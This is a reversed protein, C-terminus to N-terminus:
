VERVLCPDGRRAVAQDRSRALLGAEGRRDAVDGAIREGVAPENRRPQGDGDAGGAEGGLEGADGGLPHAVRRATVDVREQGRAARRREGAGEGRRKRVRGSPRLTPRATRGDVREWSSSGIYAVM